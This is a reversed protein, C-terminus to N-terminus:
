PTCPHQTELDFPQAVPSRFPGYLVQVAAPADIKLCISTGDPARFNVGDTSTNRTSFAFVIQQPNTTYDLSDYSNLGVPKVSTYPVAASIRGSYSVAGGGAATKLRWEGSPCDRWVFVASDVAPNITPPGCPYAPAVGLAVAAIGGGEELRYLRNAALSTFTQVTGSPWEVRLDVSTAGALGFHARKADQSWRHYGGNQVRMQTVGNATAYVRAGVADHDSATSALDLEIWHNANGLNHFLSNPGGFELPRLNFGNTVFLDLFGDVDYDGAIASDATGAGSAVAVGVPGVAGAANAVERFTGNGLNEYVINPLNSAGTRCAFYLDVDMDNDFDGATVSVCQVPKDLGAAVTGDAYGGSYNMLLTPRGTKDSPWFGTSVVKTISATSDLRLYAESFVNTSTPTLKTQIVLTWQQTAPDYGIQMVPLKAQDTPAPPLGAVSGDSPDLTFPLSAPHLAGAGIEIKSLDTASQEDAKNWDPTITVQGPTVFKFGKTGGTLQAEVHTASSQVVSAPRLQVGSLMFLDMRGDNNFDAVVSDVVKGVTPFFDSPVTNDFLKKWPFSQTDYIKQPFLGEDPCLFDLRGDGNTEYLHAYHFRKCVLKVDGTTETFVGGAGQRFLRAIGGYQTMVFDPLRDGNYDLWVPLRGGVNATTLGREKTRDVLRAHENILLQSLNGTGSSVLLDQDGDNDYDAWSGGHTDARSRNRWILVQPGTEFFTGDRRNLFLSPRTRHNSAFIDLYGDGDLDGWSAGYSEGARDVGAAASVDAFAPQAAATPAWITAAPPLAILALAGAWTSLVSGTSAMSRSKM